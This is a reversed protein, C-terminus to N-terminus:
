VTLWVDDPPGRFTLSFGTRASMATPGGLIQDSSSLTLTTIAVYSFVKVVDGDQPLTPLDITQASITGGANTIYITLINIYNQCVIAGVPSAAAQTQAILGSATGGVILWRNPLSAQFWLTYGAQLPIPTAGATGQYGKGKVTWIQDQLQCDYSSPGDGATSSGINALCVSGGGSTGNSFPLVVATGSLLDFTQNDVDAYSLSRKTDFSLAPLTGTGTVGSTAGNFVLTASAASSPSAISNPAADVQIINLGPIDETTWGPALTNLAILLAAAALTLTNDSSTLFAQTVTAFATGNVTGNLTLTQGAQMTASVTYTGVTSASGGPNALMTYQFTNAGTVTIVFTGAYAAPSQGAMFVSLGSTLGHASATTCTALTGVNTISSITQATIGLVIRAPNVGIVGGYQLAQPIGSV